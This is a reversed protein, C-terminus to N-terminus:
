SAALGRIESLQIGVRPDSILSQAIKQVGHIVTSHDRHGLLLGV